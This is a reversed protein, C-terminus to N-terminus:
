ERSGTFRRGALDGELRDGLHVLRIKLHGGGIVWAAECLQRTFSRAFASRSAAM